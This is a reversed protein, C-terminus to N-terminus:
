NTRTAADETEKGSIIEHIRRLKDTNLNSFKTNAIEKIMFARRDEAYVQERPLNAVVERIKNEIDRVFQRTNDIPHIFGDGIWATDINVADAIQEDTLTPIGYDEPTVIRTDWEPSAAKHPYSEPDIDIWDGEGIERAQVKIGADMFASAFWGLVSDRELYHTQQGGMPEIRTKLNAIKIFAYILHNM